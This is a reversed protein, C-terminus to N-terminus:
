YVMEKEADANPAIFPWSAFEARILQFMSTMAKGPQFM